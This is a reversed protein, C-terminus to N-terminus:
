QKPRSGGVALMYDLDEGLYAQALELAFVRVLCAAGIRRGALGVALLDDAGGPSV